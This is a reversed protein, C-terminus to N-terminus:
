GNSMTLLGDDRLEDLLPRIDRECIAADVEFEQSLTTCLQSLRLPQEVIQWIRYATRNFGYCTGSEVQLGVMEQDVEAEMLTSGRSILPDNTDSPV